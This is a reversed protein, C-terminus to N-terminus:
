NCFVLNKKVMEKFLEDAVEVAQLERNESNQKRGLKILQSKYSTM